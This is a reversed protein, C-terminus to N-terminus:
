DKEHFGAAAHDVEEGGFTWIQAPWRYSGPKLTVHLREHGPVRMRIVGDALEQEPYCKEIALATFVASATSGGEVMLEELSIQHMIKRITAAMNRSVCPGASRDPYNNILGPYVIVQHNNKFLSVVQSAWRDQYREAGDTEMRALEEPMVSVAAGTEYAKEVAEKSTSFSSGCVFLRKEGFVPARRPVAPRRGAAIHDLIAGFFGSAGALLCDDDVKQLWKQFDDTGAAEGVIIGAEPINEDVGSVIVGGGGQQLIDTIRSSAIAFDPDSGFGTEHLPLGDLYSAGDRIVRGLVPNAPVVLAKKKALVQM